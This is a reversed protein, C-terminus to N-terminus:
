NQPFPILFLSFPLFVESFFFFLRFNPTEGTRNLHDEIRGERPGRYCGLTLRKAAVGSRQIVVLAPANNWCSIQFSRPGGSSLLCAWLHLVFVSSCAVRFSNKIHITDIQLKAKGNDSISLLDVQVKPTKPRPTKTIQDNGLNEWFGQQLALQILDQIGKPPMWVMGSVSKSRKKLDHSTRVDMGAFLYKEANTKLADFNDTINTYLKIPDTTLTNIIQHEGSRNGPLPPRM